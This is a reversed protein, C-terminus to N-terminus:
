ELDILVGGRQGVAVRGGVQDVVGLALDVAMRKDVPVVAAFADDGDPPREFLRAVDRGEQQQLVEPVVPDELRGPHHPQGTGVQGRFATQGLGDAGGLDPGQLVEVGVAHQGGTADVVVRGHNELHDVAFAPHQLLPFWVRADPYQRCLDGVHDAIDQARNPGGEVDFPREGGLGPRGLVPVVGPQDPVVRIDHDPGPHAMGAGTATRRVDVGVEVHDPPHLAGPQDEAVDEIGVLVALRHM